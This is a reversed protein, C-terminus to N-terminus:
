EHLALIIYQIAFTLLNQYATELEFCFRIMCSAVQPLFVFVGLGGQNTESGVLPPPLPPFRYSKV